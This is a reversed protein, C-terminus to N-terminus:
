RHGPKRKSPLRSKEKQPPAGERRNMFVRELPHESENAKLPARVLEMGPVVVDSKRSRITGKGPGHLYESNMQLVIRDCRKDDPCEIKYVVTRKIKCDPNKEDCTGGVLTLTANMHGYPDEYPKFDGTYGKCGRGKGEFCARLKADTELKLAERLRQAGRLENLAVLHTRDFLNREVEVELRRKHAQKQAWLVGATGAGAVVLAAVIWRGKKKKKRVM